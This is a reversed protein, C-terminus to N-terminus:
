KKVLLDIKLNHISYGYKSAVNKLENILTEPVDIYKEDGTILEKFHIHFNDKNVLEYRQNSSEYNPYVDVIGELLLIKLNNYVTAINCKKNNKRLHNVIDNCTHQHMGDKLCEIIDLRTQTTRRGKQAYSKNNM